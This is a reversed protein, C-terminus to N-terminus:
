PRHDLLDGARVDRLRTPTITGPSFTIAVGGCGVLSATTAKSRLVPFSSHDLWTVGFSTHIRPHPPRPWAGFGFQGSSTPGSKSKEAEGIRVFGGFPRSMM